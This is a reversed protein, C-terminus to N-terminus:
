CDHCIGVVAMVMYENAVTNTIMVGHGSIRIVMFLKKRIKNAMVLKYHYLNTMM